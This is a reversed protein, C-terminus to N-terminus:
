KKIGFEREWSRLAKRSIGKGKAAELLKKINGSNSRTVYRVVREFGVDLRFLANNFHVIWVWTSKAPRRGKAIDTAALQADNLEARWRNPDAVRDVFGHKKAEFASYLAGSAYLILGAREPTNAKLQSLQGAIQQLSM